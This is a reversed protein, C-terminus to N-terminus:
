EREEKERRKEGKSIWKVKRVKYWGEECKGDKRGASQEEKM